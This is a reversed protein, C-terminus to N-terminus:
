ACRRVVGLGLRPIGLCLSAAAADSDSFLFIGVSYAALKEEPNLSDMRWFIFLGTILFFVAVGTHLFIFIKLFPGPIAAYFGLFVAM